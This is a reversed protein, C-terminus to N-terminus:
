YWRCSSRPRSFRRRPAALLRPTASNEDTDVESASPEFYRDRFAEVMTKAVAAKVSEEDAVNVSCFIVNGAGCDAVVANGKEENMDFIAAKGGAAVVRKVTARGLGSSGGTIVVVKGNIDM